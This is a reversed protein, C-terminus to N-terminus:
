YFIKKSFKQEGFYVSAREESHGGDIQFWIHCSFLPGNLDQSWMRPEPWSASCVTLPKSVPVLKSCLAWEIYLNSETFSPLYYVKVVSKKKMTILVSAIFTKAVKRKEALSSGM